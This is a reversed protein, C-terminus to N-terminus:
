GGEEVLASYVGRYEPPLLRAIRLMIEETMEHIQRSKNPGELPPLQFPMGFRVVVHARRFHRLEAFIKEQGYAVVPVLTAQTKAALLAAGGKGEQLGGTKSRTGEPAIGVVAGQELLHQVTRLARHDAEGRRIFVGKVARFLPGGVPHDEWKEAVLVTARLPLICFIAPPDLWHLHNTVLILPGRRPLNEMGEVRFRAVLHLLAWLIGQLFLYLPERKEPITPIALDKSM